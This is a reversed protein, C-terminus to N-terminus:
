QSLRGIETGDESYFIIYKPTSYFSYTSNRGDLFHYELKYTSFKIKTVIIKSIYKEVSNRLSDNTSVDIDSVFDNLLPNILMNLRNRAKSIQYELSVRTDELSSMTKLNSDIMSDGKSESLRGKIIRTNIFDNETSLSNIKDNISSLKLTSVSIFSELTQIEKETNEVVVGSDLYRKLVIRTLGDAATMNLSIRSVSADNMKLYRNNTVGITLRYGDVTYLYGQLPYIYKTRSKRAFRGSSSNRISEASHWIEKSVLPPYISEVLNAYRKERLVVCVYNQITLLKTSDDRFCKRLYLDRAISGTSERSNVYREFIERVIPGEKPHPIPRHDSDLTYGYLCKGVSLKGESKKKEKGRTIRKVRLYTEQEALSAFIGFIISSTESQTGDDRLLKFYPNLIILDVGRSLLYDRISFVIKTQRSIRSLEYAYVSSVQENEIHYKMKNLGSREEETLKSGSEKDQILIIDSEDYGDRLIAEKVKLTQSDYEQAATSVRILAIAKAM